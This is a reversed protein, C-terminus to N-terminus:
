SAGRAVSTALARLDARQTDDLVRLPVLLMLRENLLFVLTRSGCISRHLDAWRSRSTGAESAADIGVESWSFSTESLLTRQQRAMKRVRWPMLLFASAQLAWFGGILLAIPWVDDIFERVTQGTAIGMGITAVVLAAMAAAVWQMSRRKLYFALWLRNAAVYDEITPTFTASRIM